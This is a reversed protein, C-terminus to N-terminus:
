ELNWPNLGKKLDAPDARKAQLDKIQSKVEQIKGQNRYIEPSDMNDNAMRLDWMKEELWKLMLKFVVTDAYKKLEGLTARSANPDHSM